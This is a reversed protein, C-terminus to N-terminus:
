ADEPEQRFLAQGALAAHGMIAAAASWAQFQTGRATLEKGHVYEAFSWPESNMPLANARHIGDLFRQAQDWLGRQALDVVYFGTVM